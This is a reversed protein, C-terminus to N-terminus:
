QARRGLDEHEVDLLEYLGIARVPPQRDCAERVVLQGGLSKCHRRASLLVALTTATVTTLSRIDVVVLEGGAVLHDRIARRLAAMCEAVLEDTLKVQLAGDTVAFAERWGATTTMPDGTLRGVRTEGWPPEAEMTGAAAARRLMEGSQLQM